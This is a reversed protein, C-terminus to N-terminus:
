SWGKENKATSTEDTKKKGTTRKSFGDNEEKVPLIGIDFTVGDEKKIPRWTIMYNSEDFRFIAYYQGKDKNFGTKSIRTPKKSTSM